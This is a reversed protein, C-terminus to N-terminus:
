APPFMGAHAPFVGLCSQRGFKAVSCGRTRPSFWKRHRGRYRWPPVDGRARPFCMAAALPDKGSGSCGRTRPSFGGPTAAVLGVSPVDGRARPFGCPYQRKRGALRFMGAHAPFVTLTSPGLPLDASCGRTRPSFAIGLMADGGYSPVDGRARPFGGNRILLPFLM